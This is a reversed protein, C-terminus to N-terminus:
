LENDYELTSFIDVENWVIEENKQVNVGQSTLAFRWTDKVIDELTHIAKWGLVCEAKRADCFVVDMDGERKEFFTYPLKVRNHQIFAEVIELVSTGKGTGINFTDSSTEMKEIHQIASVHARALDVVHIFDRMCTGDDTEYNNGFIKLSTYVDDMDLETNNKLAVRLVFPMLNNPIGNPDEGLLGSSHAGVPNFYRLNITKMGNQAVDRLIQETMFKSQGYPNTIGVGTQTYEYLPAVSSGYVTASSSFLFKNVNYKECMALLNLTGTLNNEYYRLPHKISESVSKFAAFHIIADIYNCNFFFDLEDTNLIDINSFTVDANPHLLKIKDLVEIKSNSLNDVIHVMYGEKLLELVTHSGIFGLGGTVLIQRKTPQSYEGGM